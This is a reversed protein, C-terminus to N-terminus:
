SDRKLFEIATFRNMKPVTVTLVGNKVKGVVSDLYVPDVDSGDEISIDKTIIRAYHSDGDAFGEGRFDIRSGDNNNHRGTQIRAPISVTAAEDGDADSAYILVTFKKKTRNYSAIRYRENGQFAKGTVTIDNGPEGAVAHRIVEDAGSTIQAYWRWVYYHLHNPDGPVIYNAATFVNGSGKHITFNDDNGRLSVKNTVVGPGGDIADVVIEPKLKKIRGNYDHRKTLGMAWSSSNDSWPLNMTNLGRELCQGFVTITKIYADKEDKVGDGNVDRASGGNDWSIWSESSLVSKSEYNADDLKKRVLDYNGWTSPIIKDDIMGYGDNQDTVNLNLADVTQMLDPSKIMLDYFHSAATAGVGNLGKTTPCRQCPSMGTTSVLVPTAPEAEYVKRITEAGKTLIDEIIFNIDAGKMLGQLNAEHTLQYAHVRGKFHTAIREVFGEFLGDKPKYGGARGSETAWAPSHFFVFEVKVGRKHCVDVAREIERFSPSPSKKYDTNAETPEMAAWSVWFQVYSSENALIPRSADYENAGPRSYFPQWRVGVHMHSTTWEYDSHSKSDRPSDLFNSIPMADEQSDEAVVVPCCLLTVGSVFNILFLTTKM